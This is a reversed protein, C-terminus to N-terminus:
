LRTEELGGLYLANFLLKFTRHPQARHQPNFGILIVRGKKVKLDIVAARKELMEAGKLYGSVLLDKGDAPYSVVVRRHFRGDPPRTGFAPSNVFFGVEEARMGYALPHTNDVKLRLMSGPCKFDDGKVKALVNTVPLDLLEILYETSSDIAVVTGGDEEVWKRIREGGEEDLGGSYEPPLPTHYRRFREPPKGEKIVSAQVDPFVLTDVEGAFSGDRIQGNELNVMPFGYQKLLFRTWGEDMSAVWPKYLGIKQARVRWADGAAPTDLPWVPLHHELSLATAEQRSIEDAPVYMDGSAARTEGSEEGGGGHRLWYVTKGRGLLDNLASFASDAAHSILYGGRAPGPDGGPWAPADIPHIRGSAPQDARSIEVGMSLPLSWSAVDYPEVIEGGVSALVEPYRQPQLMTLLFPRYPQSALIVYSGAPYRAHGVSVTEDAQHVTVGHRLLLDILRAAAVPDHQEPPVVFAYPPSSRGEEVAERNLRWFNRLIGERHRSVGELLARTAILEYDIIDRLHWWGGKWPSPYNARRVYEPLGKYGGRLEGPEVYVPTAIRASAVETLLGTVNKWWATNRTGGPWYSDYIMNNGVGRKGAEELRLGMGTGLIDAQRFILSHVEPALPDTQPPVFMRPGTTGMQHEDLFVQPFWRHYLIENVVQTEKQTLMYFDRNNDHGAYHHYLWPMRGGEYETDLYKNYWDLVMVQGDPNISPMLLLIVDDLWALTEPDRTTAMEWAFEMAMQTSGVETSHISCTILVIAKGQRIFDQAEAEGLDGPHALRRAIGRYRDLNRQNEESTLVVVVMENGLTSEGAVELSVRGSADSLARMYELVRPYAALYRDEGVKRGLFEGPSPAAAALAAGAALGLCLTLSIIRSL